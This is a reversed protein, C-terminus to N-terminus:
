KALWQGPAVGTIAISDAAVRKPADVVPQGILTALATTAGAACNKRAIISAMALGLRERIFVGAAGTSKGHRGPTAFDALPSRPKLTVDAM